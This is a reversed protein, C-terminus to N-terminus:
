EQHASLVMRVRRLRRYQLSAAGCERFVRECYKAVAYLALSSSVVFAAYVLFSAEGYLAILGDLDFGPANTHWVRCACRTHACSDGILRVTCPRWTCSEEKSAFAAILIVGVVVASTGVLDLRSLHEGLWFHAFVVNAVMTFGGVPTILSQAAFGLAAFDGISGAIVLLLGWFWIPQAVYPRQRGPGRKAERMMSFKQVNVGLNSAISAFISM